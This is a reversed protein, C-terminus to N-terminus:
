KKEAVEFGQMIADEMSSYEWAGWRGISLIDKSKLEAMIVPLKVERYKDYIVYAEKLFMPLKSIIVTENKLIGMKILGSIIKKDLGTSLTGRFAVEAFVAGCEQPVNKPAVNHPFGVRYFVFDKEPVYVWHKDKPATGMYGINLNYVSTAKLKKALKSGALGSAIKMFSKLNMTNILTEYIYEGKDTIVKKAKTDIKIVTEGLKVKDKVKAYFDKIVAEIGGTEPYYFAANYGTDTKAKPLIGNMIEDLTTTPVFRGLWKVTMKDLPYKWLKSNYPVMFNKAIGEGLTNLIWQKFNEQKPNKVLSTRIFGTLNEAITEAPLGYNNIQYPYGTYAGKSYIFAHRTIKNLQCTSNELVFKEIKKDRLHLFHGTYDFVFGDKTESKCLGGPRKDKEIILFNEKLKIGAALGAFGAGIIITKM